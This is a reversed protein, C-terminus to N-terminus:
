NQGKRKMESIHWGVLQKSVSELQQNLQVTTTINLEKLDKLLRIYLRIVEVNERAKALLDVKEKVCNARYINAILEVMEEQLKEGLSYKYAKKFHQVQNFVSLLLDYSAKYVPLNSYIAM